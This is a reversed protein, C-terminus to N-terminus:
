NPKAEVIKWYSDKSVIKGHRFEFLDCGLVRLKRGERTTGTLTWKSFGRDGAVWHQDDAYHIDPLGEFRTSLGKRVESKGIYRQGWPEPGRPMQLICDEAFFDMVRDLDHANFAIVLQKLTQVTVEAGPLLRGSFCILPLVLFPIYSRSPIRWFNRNNARPEVTMM